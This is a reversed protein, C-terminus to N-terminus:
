PARRIYRSADVGLKGAIGVCKDITPTNRVILLRLAATNAKAKELRMISEERVKALPGTPDVNLAARNALIGNDIIAEHADIFGLTIPANKASTFCQGVQTLAAARVSAARAGEERAQRDSLHLSYVAVTALGFFAIVMWFQWLSLFERARRELKVM